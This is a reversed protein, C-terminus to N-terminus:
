DRVGAEPESLVFRVQTPEGIVMALIREVTRALRNELWDKAHANKTDVLFVGDRYDLGETQKLWAEFTQRAMQQQLQELAAQWLQGAKERRPDAPTAPGALPAPLASRALLRETDEPDLGGYVDAWRIFTAHRGPPIDAPPFQGQRLAGAVQEFLSWTADDLAAFALFEPPPLDNALLRKIVYAQPDRLGPQTEAYLFWAGVRTVTLDPNALLQSRAPEQVNLDDLILQLARAAAPDPILQQSISESETPRLSDKQTAANKGTAGRVQQPMKESLDADLRSEKRESDPAKESLQGYAFDQRNSLQQLIPFLNLQGNEPNQGYFDGQLRRRLEAAVEEQDAPTLPEDIMRVRYLTPQNRTTRPRGSPDDPEEPYTTTFFLVAYPNEMLNALNRTTQGIAAALEKKYSTFTDRLEGSKEDWFCHRRLYIVVWALAHGLLRVWELRFYQWGVYIKNPQIIYNYLETCRRDLEIAREDYAFDTLDFNLAEQVLELMTRRPLLRPLPGAYAIKTLLDPLGLITQIAALAAALPDVGEPRLRRLLEILGLQHRPSLPEDLVLQYRNKDRVKKGLQHLYRYRHSVDVVFWHSFPKKLCREITREDLATEESLTAKDVVCWDRRRNWYCQQRLGVILWALSPGLLPVWEDIFYRTVTFKFDPRTRTSYLTNYVGQLQITTKEDGPM